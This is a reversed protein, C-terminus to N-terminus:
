CSERPDWAFLGVSAMQSLVFMSDLVWLRCTTFTVNGKLEQQYDSHRIKSALPHIFGIMRAVMTGEEKFLHSLKSTPQFNALTSNVISVEDPQSYNAPHEYVLYTLGPRFDRTRCEDVTTVDTGENGWWGVIGSPTEMGAGCVGLNDDRRHCRATQVCWACNGIKKEDTTMTPSRPTASTSGHIICSYCDPLAPCIGPCQTTQLNSTCNAGSTRQYCVGDAPCWGCEPNATCSLQSRHRFCSSSSSVMEPPMVYALLDGSVSGHYGGFILLINGDRVDAALSFVGQQKPYPSLDPEPSGTEGQDLVHHSVWTHCELHYFYLGSDYCIEERNHKHTYGGFIVLYSGMLVAAHFARELPIHLDPLMGRPYLLESWHRQALDFAFLRDSLKSFRAAEAMIGGYVFLSHSAAHYVTSHGVLRIDYVKGGRVRVQQWEASLKGAETELIRVRFLQSSFEGNSLGGGLVYIWTQNSTPETVVTLTHRTLPPPRSALDSSDLLQWRNQDADYYFLEDSLSGNSLQGGYLVFGDRLAVMAHGYRPRPWEETSNTMNSWQSTALDLSILDELPSNLDFGGFVYFRNLRHVLVGSHATRQTESTGRGLWHWSNGTSSTTDLTCDLGLFGPNCVCRYIGDIKECSGRSHTFGCQDPCAEWQCGEGIYAAECKCVHNVCRGHSSCNLPCDTVSYEASFGELVYNTDSYLLVVM